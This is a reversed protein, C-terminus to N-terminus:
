LRATGLPGTTTYVGWLLGSRREFGFVLSCDTVLSSRLAPSPPAVGVLTHSLAYHCVLLITDWMAVPFLFCTASAVTIAHLRRKLQNKLSIRRAIVRRLASLIGASIPAVMEKM